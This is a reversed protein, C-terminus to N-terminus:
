TRLLCLVRYSKRRGVPAMSRFPTRVDARRLSREADSHAGNLPRSMNSTTLSGRRSTHKTGLMRYWQKYQGLCSRWSRGAAEPSWLDDISFQVAERGGRRMLVLEQSRMGLVERCSMTTACEALSVNMGDVVRRKVEESQKEIGAAPEASVNERVMSSSQQARGDREWARVNALLFFIGGLFCTLSSFSSSPRGPFLRLLPM